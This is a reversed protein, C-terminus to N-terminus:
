YKCRTLRWLLVGLVVFGGWVYLNRVPMGGIKNIEPEPQGKYQRELKNVSEIHKNLNVAFQGVTFIDKFEYKGASISKAKALAGPLQEELHLQSSMLNKASSSVAPKHSGQMNLLKEKSALFKAVYSQIKAEVMSPEATTAGFMYNM